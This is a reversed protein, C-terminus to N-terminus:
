ADRWGVPGDFPGLMEGQRERERTHKIADDRLMRLLSAEDGEHEVECRYIGDDQICQREMTDHDLKM